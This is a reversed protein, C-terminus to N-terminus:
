KYFIGSYGTEEETLSWENGIYVPCTVGNLMDKGYAKSTDFNRLDLIELNNMGAFMNWM